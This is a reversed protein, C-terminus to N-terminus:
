MYAPTQISALYQEVLDQCNKCQDKTQWTNSDHGFGVWKVLYERVFADKQPYAPNRAARSPRRPITRDRHNIIREVEWEADGEIVTPMPPPPTKGPTFPRLLSVHFVSHVRPMDPTLELEYALTGIRKLVIFPGLFKPLLKKTGVTKIKIHKSSLLVQEGVQFALDRRREDANKKMHAQASVLSDKALSIAKNLGSVFENAAPINTDMVATAPGRPHRGYNLYFPSFGTSAKASNNVAFEACPLKLDWDDQSPSVYHRLMEELTRNTRETQGDTEPHFATSMAQKIGLHQCIATFFESTFRPDRDSVFNEPLGHRRFIESMFLEAYGLASLKDRSPAFHVMKTLRDVFVVIATHGRTTCPLHTILDMSVSQWPYEPIPLPNLLGGPRKAQTKNQQCSACSAVYANVDRRISPWWFQRQVLELTKDRGPHGAYPGDHHLAVCREQLQPEDPVLIQSGYYWLDNRKIYSTETLNQEAETNEVYWEAIDELLAKVGEPASEQATTSLLAPGPTNNQSNPHNNGLSPTQREHSEREVDPIDGVHACPNVQTGAVHLLNPCRSLADAVNTPGKEYVWTPNVRSLEIQWRAQRRSFQEASKTNLFTNPLHDTVITVGGKAGELYCRWKKLASITALLEQEGVPYNREAGSLKASHFALPRRPKGDISNDVQMLTAGIGYGSADTVVIFPEDFNPSALVPATTVTEKLWTFADLAARNESLNFLVSPKV